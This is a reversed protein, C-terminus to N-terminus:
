KKDRAKKLNNVAITHAVAAKIKQKDDATMKLKTKRSEAPVELETDDEKKNEPAPTAVVIEEKKIEPAPIAVVIEEKKIEPEQMESIEVKNKKARTARPKTVKVILPPMKKQTSNIPVNEGESDSMKVNYIQNNKVTIMNQFIIVNMLEKLIKV